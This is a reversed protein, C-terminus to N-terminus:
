SSKHLNLITDQHLDPCSYSCKNHTIVLPLLQDKGFSAFFLLSKNSDKLGQWKRNM